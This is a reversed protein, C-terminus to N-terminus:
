ADVRTKATPFCERLVLVFVASSIGALIAWIFLIGLLIPLHKPDFVETGRLKWNSIVFAIGEIPVWQLASLGISDILVHAKAIPSWAIVVTVLLAMLAPTAVLIYRPFEPSEMDIGLRFLFFSFPLGGLGLCVAASKHTFLFARIDKRIGDV